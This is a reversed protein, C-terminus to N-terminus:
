RRKFFLSASLSSSIAFSTSASFAFFSFALRILSISANLFFSASFSASSPSSSFIAPFSSGQHRVRRFRLFLRVVGTHFMWAVNKGFVTVSQADGKSCLCRGTAAAPKNPLTKAEGAVATGSTRFLAALASYDIRESSALSVLIGNDTDYLLFEGQFVRCPVHFPLAPRKM